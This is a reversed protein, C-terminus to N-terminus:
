LKAFQPKKKTFFSMAAVGIDQTQLFSGNLIRVMEQLEKPSKGSMEYNLMFKIGRITVPSKGAIM